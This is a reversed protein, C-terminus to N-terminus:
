YIRNNDLIQSARMEKAPITYQNYVQGDMGIFMKSDRSRGLYEVVEDNNLLYNKGKSDVIQLKMKDDERKRQICM